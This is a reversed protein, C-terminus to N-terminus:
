RRVLRKLVKKSRDDHQKKTIKGSEHQDDIRGLAKFAKTVTYKKKM